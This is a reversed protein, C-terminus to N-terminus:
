LNGSTVIIEDFEGLQPQQTNMFQSKVAGYPVCKDSRVNQRYAVLDLSTPFTVGIVRYGKQRAMDIFFRRRKASTNTNDVFIDRNLALLDKYATQVKNMFQKDASALEYANAYDSPDYWEMRLTDWSYASTSEDSRSNTFTSKGSGSCGVLIYVRPKEIEDILEPLQGEGTLTWDEMAPRDPNHSFEELWRTVEIRNADQTDGIRGWNDARLLRAYVDIGVTGQATMYLNRRKVPDKLGWPRHHEIMWTIKYLDVPTLEFLEVVHTWNRAAWDEWLRASIIEHGGYSYYTGRTENHKETRAPPKGVDHFACAIAGLLDDRSWQRHDIMSIYEAVVMNTHVAVTIERHWKSAESCTTMAIFLPDSAFENHYWSIFQSTTTNM